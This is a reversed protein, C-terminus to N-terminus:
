GAERALELVPDETPRAPRVREGGRRSKLTTFAVTLWTAHFILGALLVFQGAVPGIAAREWLDM